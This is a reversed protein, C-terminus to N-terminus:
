DEEDFYTDEYLINYLVSFYGGENLINYLMYSLRHYFWVLREPNYAFFCLGQLGVPPNTIPLNRPAWNNSNIKKM